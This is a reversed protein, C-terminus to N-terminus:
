LLDRDALAEPVPEGNEELGAVVDQAIQVIGTFAAVQDDSLWSLSPLEAVTGVFM